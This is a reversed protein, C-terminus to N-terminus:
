KSLNFVANDAYQSAITVFYKGNGITIERTSTSYESTEISKPQFCVGGSLKFIAEKQTWLEIVASAPLGNLKERERVTAIREALSLNFRSPDYKEVDIGVPKDSVAVAVVDGSHSLSFCCGDCEWKGTQTKKVNLRGMDLGFSLALARELLKWVFYKQQRIKQNTCSEIEEARVAPLIKEDGGEFPFVSLYVHVIHNELKETMYGGFHM